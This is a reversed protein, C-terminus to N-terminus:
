SPKMGVGHLAATPLWPGPSVTCPGAVPGHCPRARVLGNKERLRGRLNQPLWKVKRSRYWVQVFASTFRDAVHLWLSVKLLPRPHWVGRLAKGDLSRQPGPHLRRPEAAWPPRGREERLAHPGQRSFAWCGLPCRGPAKSWLQRSPLVDRPPGLGQYRWTRSSTVCFPSHPM